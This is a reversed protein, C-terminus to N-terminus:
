ADDDEQRDLKYARVLDDFAQWAIACESRWYVYGFMWAVQVVMVAWALRACYTGLNAAVMHVLMLLGTMIVGSIVCLTPVTPQRELM